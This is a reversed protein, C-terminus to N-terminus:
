PVRVVSGHMSSIPAILMIYLYKNITHATSTAPVVFNFDSLKIKVNRWLSGMRAAHIVKPLDVM